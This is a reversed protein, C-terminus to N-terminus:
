IMELLKKYSPLNEMDKIVKEAQQVIAKYDKGAPATTAGSPIELRQGIQILNLNIIGNAKALAATTVGYRKAIESLTEGRKVTHLTAM